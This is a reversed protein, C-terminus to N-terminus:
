ADRRYGAMRRAILRQATALQTPNLGSAEGLATGKLGEARGMIVMQADPRDAFMDLVINMEQKYGLEEEASPANGNDPVLLVELIDGGEDEDSALLDELSMEPKRKRRKHWSSAISRMVGYLNVEISVARNLKRTGTLIRLTGERLLDEPEAPLTGVLRKGWVIWRKFDASTTLNVVLWAQFEDISWHSTGEGLEEEETM